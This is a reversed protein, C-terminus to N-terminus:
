LQLEHGYRSVQSLKLLSEAERQLCEVMVSENNERSIYKNFNCYTCRRLCYPWQPLFPLDGQYLGELCSM